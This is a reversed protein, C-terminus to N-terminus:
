TGISKGRQGCSPCFNSGFQRHSCSVSGAFHSNHKTLFVSFMKPVNKNLADVGDWWVTHFFDSSIIRRTNYLKKACRYLGLLKCFGKKSILYIEQKKTGMVVHLQEFPFNSDIYENNLVASVLAKNTLCDVFCDVARWPIKMCITCPVMGVFSFNQAIKVHLVFATM